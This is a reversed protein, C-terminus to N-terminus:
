NGTLGAVALAKIIRKETVFEHRQNMYYLVSPLVGCAGCTPATVILGGSANEESVAYAFASVLRNETIEPVENLLKKHYLEYAKRKMKLPGPLVGESRIGREVSAKMADWIAHLFPVIEKGEVMVVYDYLTM